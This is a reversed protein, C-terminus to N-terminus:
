VPRIAANAAAARSAPNSNQHWSLLAPGAAAAVVAAIAAVPAVTATSLVGRLLARVELPDHRDVADRLHVLAAAREREAAQHDNAIAAATGVIGIEGLGKVGMPSTKEDHEDLFIVEIEGIDANVPVHYEALNHNMFRGLAHDTFNPNVAVYGRIRDPHERQLRLMTDNGYRCDDPSPFYIPSTFGWSGLISAVHTTIGVREGARLRSANRERWDARPTRDHLFHAHVDILM